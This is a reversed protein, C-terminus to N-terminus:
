FSYMLRLIFIMTDCMTKCRAKKWVYQTYEYEKDSIHANNLKSFFAEKPPLQTKYFKEWSNMYEYPYVGKKLYIELLEPPIHKGTIKFNEPHAFCRDSDIRWLHGSKTCPLKTGDKRTIEKCAEARSSRVPRTPDPRTLAKGSGFCRTPDPLPDSRTLRTKFKVFWYIHVIEVFIAGISIIKSGNSEDRQSSDLSSYIM